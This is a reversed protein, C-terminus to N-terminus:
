GNDGKAEKLEAEKRLYDSRWKQHAVDAKIRFRTERMVEALYFGDETDVMGERFVREGFELASISSEMVEIRREKLLERLNGTFQKLQEETHFYNVDGIDLGHYHNVSHLDIGCWHDLIELFTEAYHNLDRESREM